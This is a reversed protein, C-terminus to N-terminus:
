PFIEVHVDAPICDKDSPGGFERFLEYVIERAIKGDKMQFCHVVRANMRTGPGYPLNPMEDGVVTVDGIQDDFVFDETAFRRLTTLKHYKITRFIGLYAKKVEVPDTYVQGRSPAEWVIDPGYLEIAKDIDEPNENHFHAEVVRLNRAIVEESTLASDPVNVQATETVEM